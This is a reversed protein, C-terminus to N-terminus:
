LNHARVWPTKLEGVFYLVGLQNIGAVDPVKAYTSTSAKFDTFVLGNQQSSLIATVVQGIHQQFRGQVGHEDGVRVHENSLHCKGDKGPTKHYLVHARRLWNHSDCANWVLKEFGVWQKL